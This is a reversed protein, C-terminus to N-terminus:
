RVAPIFWAFVLVALALTLVLMGLRHPRKKVPSNSEDAGFAFHALPLISDEVRRESGSRRDADRNSDEDAVTDRRGQKREDAQMRSVILKQYDGWSSLRWIEEPLLSTLSEAAQWSSQDESLEDNLKIRGLLIYRSIVAAPFPGRIIGERRTYWLRETKEQEM